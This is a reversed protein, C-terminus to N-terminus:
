VKDIWSDLAKYFESPLQLRIDLYWSNPLDFGRCKVADKSTMLCPKQEHKDIKDKEFLFRFDDSQYNHHDPFEHREFFIDLAELSLFFKEPQGIGAVAHVTVQSFADLPLEKNGSVSRWIVPHVDAYFLPTDVTQLSLPKIQKENGNNVIVCHVDNLREIPERLPGVPLCHGNGFLRQGDVVAIEIHRDLRYHQLGDDAILINVKKQEILTKSALSRDAHVAVPCRAENFILLPEDGVVEVKSGKEVIQLSQDKRGYGRSVVGPSHGKEQLYRVLAIVIPTKGTGGVSINGVIITPVSPLYSQNQLNNKRRRALYRFLRELPKLMTLVGPSDQYWRQEIANFNKKTSKENKINPDLTV